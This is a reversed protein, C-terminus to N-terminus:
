RALPARRATAPGSSAQRCGGAQPQGFIRQLRPVGACTFPTSAGWGGILCDDLADLNWGFYGGPVPM